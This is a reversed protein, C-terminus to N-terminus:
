YPQYGHGALVSAIGPTNAVSGYRAIMYRIAAALNAVPNDIGGLGPIAYSQFTPPIMQALGEAHYGGPTATKNVISPNGGSEHSVLIRLMNDMAPSGSVHAAAEAQDIWSQLNGGISPTAGGSQGGGRPGVGASGGLAGLQALLAITSMPSSTPPPMPQSAQQFLTQIIPSTTQTTM